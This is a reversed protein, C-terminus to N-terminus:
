TVLLQELKIGNKEIIKTNFGILDALRREKEKLAEALKSGATREVFLTSYIEKRKVERQGTETVLREDARVLEGETQTLTQNNDEQKRVQHRWGKRREKGSFWPKYWCAKSLLNKETREVETEQGERYPNGGKEKMVSVRHQYSALGGEIIIRRLRLSYGSYILKNDYNNTVEEVKSDDMLAEEVRLLRRVLDNSCWNIKNNESTASDAPTVWPSKMTKEFFDFFLEGEKLKIKFDLTPLWNDEFDQFDEATFNLYESVGNLCKLLEAQTKEVLDRDGEVDRQLEESTVRFIKREQCYYAGPPFIDQISRGDDVYNKVFEVEVKLPEGQKNPREGETEIALRTNTQDLSWWSKEIIQLVECWVWEMTVLSCAMTLRLGTPGGRQQWYIRGGVSYCFNEFM